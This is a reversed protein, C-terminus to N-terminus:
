PSWSASTSSAMLALYGGIAYFLFPTVQALFNNLFKVLFKWQYLDIASRSSAGSGPPSTPASTTRPTTSTSRPSATSSRASGAPSSRARDVPARPRARLQAQAHAPHHRGPRRRDGAAILGLWFNQVLIFVLATLAQGGLLAPQVFADGIFGGLPEVEDKVMTAIEAAKVRKFM